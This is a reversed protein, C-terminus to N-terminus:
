FPLKTNMLTFNESRVIFETPQIFDLVNELKM